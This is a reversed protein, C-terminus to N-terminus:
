KHAQEHIGIPQVTAIQETKAHFRTNNSNNIAELPSVTGTAGITSVHTYIQTTSLHKHGLLEQLTRIDTGSELLHTAFSHRLTHPGINKKIDALQAAQKVKKQIASEHLHWRAWVGTDPHPCYKTSPFIFQWGWERPANPYKKALAYPLHTDGHGKALDQTHIRKVEELQQQLAAVISGPLMVSRDKERKGAKVNIQMRDFDIDHVRLSLAETLRLGAGYIISAVLWATSNMHSLLGYVERTSLVVPLKKPKTARSFTSIDAIDQQRVRKYYFVLANLAQKQTSASVNREKALYTLFATLKEETSGKPHSFLWWSYNELWYLYSKRTKVSMRRFRMVNTAQEKAKEITAKRGM